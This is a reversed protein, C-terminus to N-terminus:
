ATVRPILEFLVAIGSPGQNEHPRFSASPVKTLSGAGAVDCEVRGAGHAYHRRLLVQQLTM